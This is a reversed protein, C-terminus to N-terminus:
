KLFLLKRQTKTAGAELRCLYVGAALDRGDLTVQHRGAPRVGDVLTRVLRGQVDFVRLAVPGSAPLSFEIRTTGRAPNPQNQGLWAVGPGSLGSVAGVRVSDTGGFQYYRASFEQLYQNALDPDHVILTNENNSNEAAASWNHSGTLVVGDQHIDDADALLYKHHLLGGGTNLHVDVGATVLNNYESGTDTGNDLDGRVNVGANHRAILASALDTRTLTLVEFSLSHQAANITSLIHSNTADSPSFYAEVAHGGISFRHPTDDLKRAGFRSVSANPTDTSSGWMEQFELTYVNALALDQVEIANQYDNNTGPDTPNWSGTWVWCSEPAGGRGDIVFFKDHMLGQGGNVADFRDNIVTIGAATLSNLAASGINDYETIVRVQVGRAKAAILANALTTGPTGSLSYVAADVSRKANGLRTVLLAPLDANGNAEHLWALSTLVSKNFYANMQGTSAAPSATSFLRTTSFNTGNVDTSGAAYSYVTAPTLGTLTVVHSTVPTNDVASDGFASTLGYRVVSTSAVDTTWHIEVSTSQIADEYPGSLLIPGAHPIIDDPTRPAIEYDATFPPGPATVGPKYQKLIGVADFVAPPAPYSTPIFITATGSADTITSAVSNYTVGNIRILRSENPETYDPRFTANLEACTMVLPEPVPRGSAHVTLLNFDPQLETLGRFQLISGTVTISDGPVLTVPGLAANFLDIGGTGDQVYVDTRTTSLNATVVGTVTAESGVAYPSVPVGTADNVHITVIPVLDLVRVSPQPTILVPTGSAVATRVTFATAGKASPTTMNALTVTGGDTTTLAASAVFLTEGVVSPTAAAFAAGGLTVDATSHSWTWSTPVLIAIQTVTYASDQSFTLTVSQGSRATFVMTPAIAAHGTGNGGAAFAPEPPSLSNQPERGHTQTVYDSGNVNTDQGNGLLHHAGGLGLSDATSTALAKREVSLNNASTGHNPAAVGGEPAIATGWGVMDVEVSSADIIREHGNDAMGTGSTWLGSNYDGTVTGIYSQNVLLYFGHGAITAGAPLVARDSWATGTASKYQLKWGALSIANDTPNYLEVFEDTAATPGRTAFESIVVHNAAAHAAPVPGFAPAALALAVLAALISPRM